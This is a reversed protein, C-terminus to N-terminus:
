VIPPRGLDRQEISNHCPVILQQVVPEIEHETHQAPHDVLEEVGKQYAMCITTFRLKQNAELQDYETMVHLVYILVCAVLVINLVIASNKLKEVNSLSLRNSLYVCESFHWIIQNPQGM